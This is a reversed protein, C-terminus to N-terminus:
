NGIVYTPNEIINLSEESIFLINQNYGFTNEFNETIKIEELIFEKSNYVELPLIEILHTKIEENFEYSIKIATFKEHLLSLEKIIYEQEKINMTDTTPPEIPHTDLSPDFRCQVKLPKDQTNNLEITYWDQEKTNM